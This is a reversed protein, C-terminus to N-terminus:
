REIFIISLSLSVVMCRSSLIVILSHLLICKFTKRIRIIVTIFDNKPFNSQMIYKSHGDFCDEAGDVLYIKTSEPYIILAFNTFYYAIRFLLFNYVLVPQIERSYLFLSGCM